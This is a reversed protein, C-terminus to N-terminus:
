AAVESVQEHKKLYAMLSAFVILRVGTKAGRKRLCISKVPPKFKNLGTPLILENVYSRTLGTYPCLTGTKPLRIYEPDHSAVSAARIPEETLRTQNHKNM